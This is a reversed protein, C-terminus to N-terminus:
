ARWIGQLFTLGAEGYMTHTGSASETASYYTFGAAPFAVLNCNMTMDNGIIHSARHTNNTSNVGIGMETYTGPDVRAQLHLSIAEEDVGNVIEVQWTSSGEFARSTTSAYTWNSGTATRSLM